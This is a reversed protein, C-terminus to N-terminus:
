PLDEKGEPFDPISRKNKADRCATQELMGCLNKQMTELTRLFVTLQEESIGAVMTNDIQSFLEESCQVTKRGKDTISIRNSRNDGEPNNRTIYGGNELRNLTVTVAAPSIDFHSALEKQSPPESAHSLHMLMVHQSRHLGVDNTVRAEVLQRHLRDTRIFEQMVETALRRATEEPLARARAEGETGNETTHLRFGGKQTPFRQNIRCCRKPLDKGTQKKGSFGIYM